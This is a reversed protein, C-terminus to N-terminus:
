ETSTTSALLATLENVFKSRPWVDDAGANRAAEALDTRVHAYFALIRPPHQHNRAIHIAALPDGSAEMDVILLDPTNHDLATSTTALSSVCDLAVGVDKATHRIKSTFIM